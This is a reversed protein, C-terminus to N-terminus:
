ETLSETLEPMSLVAECQETIRPLEAALKDIPFDIEPWDSKICHESINGRLLTHSWAQWEPNKLTMVSLFDAFQLLTLLQRVPLSLEDCQWFDSQHHLLLTKTLSDPLRWQRAVLCGLETHNFGFQQDELDNLEDPSDWGTQDILEVTDAAIQLMIFRGLDHILGSIYALEPNVNFDTTHEALFQCMRATEVSHRWCMTIGPRTVELFPIKVLTKMLELTKFVGIRELAHELNYVPKDQGQPMAHAYSLVRAALPPYQEALAAVKIYFDVSDCSLQKLEDIVSPAIPLYEIEDNVFDLNILKQYQASNKNM